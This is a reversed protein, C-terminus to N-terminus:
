PQTHSLLCVSEVHATRPFMDVCTLRRAEYGKERLLAADRALTGPDCSVYVVRAPAMAAIAEITAADLGRRPPDVCVVDPKLGQANLRAAAEGADACLFEANAVGNREASRRANEVADPVIEVGIARGAKQALMLTITGAGCYLDVVLESGHLGAYELACAYLCEAQDRNVQYFSLPSLEFALGCLTDPLTQRGWLARCEQGLLTNGRTRNLNLVAGVVAPCEKEFLRRLADIHAPMDAAILTLLMKGDKAARLYIQRLLGRGTTEDYVPIHHEDVWRLVLQAARDCGDQQLLCRSLPVIEHSRSRFFGTVAHGDKMGVPYIAKNRYALPSPAGIMREATLSIGGVRALASEVRERKMRLEEEYTIHRLACGGCKPFAACDPVIRASSPSLVEEVRGYAHNRLVKVIRIRVHDGRAAAPVFVVMSDVRCVGAGESTYGDIVVDFLDNKKM